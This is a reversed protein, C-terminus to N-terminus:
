MGIKELEEYIFQELEDPYNYSYNHPIRLLTIGNDECLEDTKQDRSMQDLLDNIGNRHFHPVYESHQKGDYEFAIKLEECYGDLELYEMCKLRRKTFEYTYIREFVDRCASESKYTCKPCWSGHQLAQFTRTFIHKKNCEVDVNITNSQIDYPIDERKTLISGGLINIWNFVRDISKDRRTRLHCMRCWTNQSKLNSMSITWKHGEKCEWDIPTELNTYVTSLCKGGHNRAIEHAVSIDHSKKNNDCKKCWQGNNRIHGMTISFTHGDKCVWKMKTRRNIYLTELCKGDHKLAEQHCDDITLKTSSCETCWTKNGIINRGPARWIHGKECKWEYLAKLGNGSDDILKICSGNYQKAINDIKELTWIKCEPCWTNNNYINSWMADWQHGDECEWKYKTTMGTYKTSLCKGGKNKAHEILLTYADINECEKCWVNKSLHRWELTFIHNNQCM